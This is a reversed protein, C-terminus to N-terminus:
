SALIRGIVYGFIGGVVFCLSSMTYLLWINSRHTSEIVEDTLRIYELWTRWIAPDVSMMMTKSVTLDPKSKMSIDQMWSSLQLVM